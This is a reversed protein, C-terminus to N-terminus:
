RARVAVSTSGVVIPIPNSGFFNPPSLQEFIVFARRQDPAFGPDVAPRQVFVAFTHPVNPTAEFPVSAAPTALCAGTSPNSECILVTFQKTPDSENFPRAYVAKATVPGSTAINVTAVGFAGGSSSPVDIIGDNTPTAGISIMDAPSFSAVATVQFTNALNTPAFFANACQFLVPGDFTPDGLNVGQSRIAFVFSKSKGAPITVPQNPSGIATNTQPDTEQFSINSRSAGQTRVICGIADNTSSNIVTGFATLVQNLWGARLAPLTAAVISAQPANGRALILGRYEARTTEVGGVLGSFVFQGSLTRTTINTNTNAPFTLLTAAGPALAIPAPPTFFGGFTTSSVVEVTQGGSNYLVFAPEFCTNTECVYDKNNVPSGGVLALFAALGGSPPFQFVNLSIAGQQGGVSGTQISYTTGAVADFQVLSGNTSVGPVPFDNNGAVRTLANVASGTYVALVTDIESGFTHIVVRTNQTPSFRSWISRTLIGGETPEGQELTAGTNDLAYTDAYTSSYGIMIWGATSFFDLRQDIVPAAQSPTVDVALLALIVAAFGSLVAQVSVLPRHRM